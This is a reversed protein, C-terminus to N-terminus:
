RNRTLCAHLAELGDGDITGGRIPERTQLAQPVPVAGRYAREATVADHVDTITMIRTERTIADLAVAAPGRTPLDLPRREALIAVTERSV